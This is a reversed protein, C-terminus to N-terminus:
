QAHRDHFVRLATLAIIKLDLALSWNNIYWLDYNIREELDTDGRWGNVQAWGTIGAKVMHKQMYGPIQSKFQEVYQPREPRPGVVSMEGKLVNWFQPLEDISLRRLWRGLPITPKEAAGGWTSGSKENDVPMTRYKIINFTDGNWGVREQRYFVPSGSTLRIWLAVLLLLPALLILALAAITKDELWKALRKGGHMPSISLDLAYHGVLHSARYNILRIDRLDPIYRINATSYKLADLIDAVAHADALPLCLWIEDCPPESDLAADYRRIDGIDNYHAEGADTLRIQKIRYGALPERRVSRYIDRCASQTGILVISRTNYGAGRLRNLIAYAVLRTIICAACATSLWIGFWYRSFHHGAKTFYLYAVILATLYAYSRVLRLFLRGRLAGRWSRYVGCAGFLYVAALSSLTTMWQYREWQWIPYGFYAWFTFAGALYILVADACKALWHMHHMAGNRAPSAPAQHTM